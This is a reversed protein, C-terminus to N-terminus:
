FKTLLKSLALKEQEEIQLGAKSYVEALSAVATAQSSEDRIEAIHELNALGLQRVKENRGHAAYRSLIDIMASSRAVFQPITEAWSAAEDLMAVAADGEDLRHKADSMMLLANVKEFDEDILALTDRAAEDNKHLTLVQAIQSLTSWQEKEDPNLQAIEVARDNKEFVAFQVAIAGLLANRARSDRIESEKQSDLIALAEELTDIADEKEEKRWSNRAFVLLASAMQTKDSILDLTEDALEEEGGHLFGISCTVLLVDRHVNDLLEAESRAKEYIGIALDKRGADVLHNGIDCLVRIKEEDHEIEDASMAARELVNVAKETNGSDIHADAISQLASTMASPFEIRNLTDDLGADDGNGAQHVAIASYVIDPHVMMDAIELAAATKGQSAKVFGIREFAESRLGHDEIADALQVAYDDDDVMACKEAVKILLKDRSHPDGIANALEAALDVDGRDLYAPVVSAMAEAHGDSSKIREAIFAAAALLDSDAQERSIFLDPM